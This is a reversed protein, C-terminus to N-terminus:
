GALPCATEKCPQTNSAFQATLALAYIGLGEFAQLADKLRVVGVETQFVQFDSHMDPITTAIQGIVHPLEIRYVVQMAAEAFGPFRTEIERLGAEEPMEDLAELVEVLKGIPLREGPAAFLRKWHAVQSEPYDGTQRIHGIFLQGWVQDETM